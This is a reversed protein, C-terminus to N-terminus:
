FGEESDIIFKPRQRVEDYIRAIYEGLVGLSILQVGGLFLVLVVITPNGLPFPVGALRAIAYAAATILSVFSIIFGIKTILTLTYNSFCFIGNFGIKLSGWLRNYNGKGSYRAPREFKVATQKFGVFAVLGRLFGNMEKLGIVENVVRRSMLRFDGTNPPIEIESIKNIIKYGVYSVIKKIVTEGKRNIRQAYVVDYGEKWKNYLEMILEPPDQLDVDMVITAAGSSKQLGALTAMPQGFRRSFVLLRIRKNSAMKKRIVNATNDPCPDLCFIIEYEISTNSLLGEIASLFPEINGEENFIPVVISLDM